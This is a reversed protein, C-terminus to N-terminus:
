KDAKITNLLQASSVGQQQLLSELAPLLPGLTESLINRVTDVIVQTSREIEINLAAGAKKQL